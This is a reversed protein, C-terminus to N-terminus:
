TVTYERNEKQFSVIGKWDSFCVRFKDFISKRGMLNFGIGLHSSFGVETEFEEEGIQVTIKHLYVPIFSGDGVVIMMKEGKEMVIGLREAEAAEFISYTAGSDVFVWVDYWGKNGKVRLPIMPVKLGRHITYSFEVSHM